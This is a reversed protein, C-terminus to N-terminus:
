KNKFHLKAARERREDLDTATLFRGRQISLNGRSFRGAIERKLEADRHAIEKTAQAIFDLGLFRFVAQEMGSYWVLARQGRM